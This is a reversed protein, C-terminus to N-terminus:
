DVADNHSLDRQAHPYFPHLVDDDLLTGMGHLGEDQHPVTGNTYIRVQHVNFTTIDPPFPQMGIDHYEITADLTSRSPAHRVTGHSIHINGQYSWEVEIQDNVSMVSRMSRLDALTMIHPSDHQQQTPKQTRTRHTTQQQQQRQHRWVNNRKPHAHIKFETISPAPARKGRNFHQHHWQAVRYMLGLTEARGAWRNHCTRYYKSYALDEHDAVIENVMSRWQPRNGALSTWETPDYRRLLGRLSKELTM